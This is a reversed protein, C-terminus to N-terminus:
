KEELKNLKNELKETDKGKILEKTINCKLGNSKRHKKTNKKGLIKYGKEVYYDKSSDLARKLNEKTTTYVNNAMHTQGLSNMVLGISGTFILELEELVKLYQTLTKDSINLDLCIKSYTDYLSDVTSGDGYYNELAELQESNNKGIRALCYCYLKLLKIKDIKFKSNMLKFYDCSYLPFFHIDNNNDDKEYTINFKIKIFDRLKIENLDIKKDLWGISQIQKLTHKIKELSGGKHRDVKLRCDRILDDLTFNVIGRNNKNENLYILVPIILNNDKSITIEGDKKNSIWVLNNPLKNWFMNTELNEM